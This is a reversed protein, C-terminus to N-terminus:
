LVTESIVRDTETSGLSLTIILNYQVHIPFGEFNLIELALQHIKILNCVCCRHATPFNAYQKQTSRVPVSLWPLM